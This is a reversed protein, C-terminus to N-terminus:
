ENTYNLKEERSLQKIKFELKSASSKNECEFTKLLTVPARGKTYKSGVGANHAAIRKEVNNSIGTYLTEDSCKAIYVFWKEFIHISKMKGVIAKNFADLEEALIWYEQHYKSGVIKATYNNIFNYDIDFQLVCGFGNFKYNWDRAIQIAYAESTVPYFIPQEPLRPPFSKFKSKKILKLENIGVPRYLTLTQNPM